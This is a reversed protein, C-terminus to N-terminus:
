ESNPLKEKLFDILCRVKLPTYRSQLYVANFPLNQGTYDNMLQTLRGEKLHHEVMWIPLTVIGMGTLAVELLVDGNDSQFNGNVAVAHKQNQKTFSWVNIDKMRSYVLCNHQKLDELTKPAGHQQLYSPAALVLMPNDFLHRAILTSDELQKARIAVDIGDSILDTHQDSLQLDVKIDPYRQFFEAMIPALLIRGFAVPASIRITGQPSAVESRAEAEAEDLEGLIDVCTQYYKAGAPTLAHDRSSRALLKVGIKKELAAVKKSITTQSTNMERGTASFSGTQVVRVFARMASLQDM